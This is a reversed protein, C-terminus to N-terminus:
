LLEAGAGAAAAAAAAAAGAGWLAVLAAAVCFVTSFVVASLVFLACLEELNDVECKLSTFVEVFHVSCAACLVCCVACLVYCVACLM